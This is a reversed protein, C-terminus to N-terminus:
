VFLLIVEAWQRQKTTPFFSTKNTADVHHWSIYFLLLHVSQRVCQMSYVGYPKRENSLTSSLTSWVGFTNVRQNMRCQQKKRNLHRIITTPIWVNGQQKEHIFHIHKIYAICLRTCIEVQSIVSSVRKKRNYKDSATAKKPHSSFGASLSEFRSFAVSVYNKKNDWQFINASLNELIKQFKESQWKPLLKLELRNVAIEPSQWDSFRSFLRFVSICSFQGLIASKDLCHFRKWVPLISSGFDDKVIFTKM